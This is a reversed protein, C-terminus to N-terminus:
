RVDRQCQLLHLWVRIGSILPIFNADPISKCIVKLGDGSEIGVTSDLVDVISVDPLRILVCQSNSFQCLIEGILQIGKRKLNLVLIRSVPIDLPYLLQLQPLM